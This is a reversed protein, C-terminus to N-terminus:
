RKNRLATSSFNHKRENYYIYGLDYGTHKTNKYEEGVIRVDPEIIKILNLLDEEDDFPIVMDVNANAEIQIFRELISQVPTNKEKRDRSPDTQLGVILFDCQEKAEDLMLCHGAHLMDFASATFGIKVNNKKLDMIKKLM